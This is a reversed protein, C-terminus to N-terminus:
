HVRATLQKYIAAVAANGLPPPEGEPARLWAAVLGAMDDRERESPVEAECAGAIAAKLAAPSFGEAFICLDRIDLAMNIPFLKLWPRASEFVPAAGRPSHESPLYITNNAFWLTITELPFRHVRLVFSKAPSTRITSSVVL